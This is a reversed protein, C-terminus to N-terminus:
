AGKQELFKSFGSKGKKETPHPLGVRDAPTWGFKATIKMMREFAKNKRGCSPNTYPNGKDSVLVAGRGKIDEMAEIFEQYAESYMGIAQYDPEQLLGKVKECCKVLQRYKELGVENLYVPEEIASESFEIENDPLKQRSPNGRAIKLSTPTPKPGRKGM